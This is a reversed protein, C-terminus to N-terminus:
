DIICCHQLFDWLVYRHSIDILTLDRYVLPMFLPHRPLVSFFMYFNFNVTLMYFVWLFLSWVYWWNKRIEIGDFLLDMSYPNKDAMFYKRCWFSASIEFVICLFRSAMEQKSYWLQLPYKYWQLTNIFYTYFYGSKFQPTRALVYIFIDPFEFICYLVDAM